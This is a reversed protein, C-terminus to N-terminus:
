VAPGRCVVRAPCEVLAVCEARAECVVAWCGQGQEVLYGALVVVPCGWGPPGPHEAPDQLWDWALRRLSTAVPWTM